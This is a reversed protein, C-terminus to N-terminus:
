KEYDDREELEDPIFNGNQDNMLDTIFDDRKYEQDAREYEEMFKEDRGTDIIEEAHREQEYDLAPVESTYSEYLTRADDYFIPADSEHQEKRDHVAEQNIREFADFAAMRMENNDYSYAYIEMEPNDKALKQEYLLRQDQMKKMAMYEEFTLEVGGHRRDSQVVLEKGKQIDSNIYEKYEDMTLERPQNMESLLGAIREEKEPDNHSITVVEGDKKHFVAGRSNVTMTNGELDAAYMPEKGDITCAKEKIEMFKQNEDEIMREMAKRCEPDTLMFAMTMRINNIKREDSMSYLVNWENEKPNQLSVNIGAAKAYETFLTAETVSLGPIKRVNGNAYQELMQHPVIGGISHDYRYQAIIKEVAKAEEKPYVILTEGNLSIASSNMFHIGEKKLMATIGQLDKEPCKFCCAGEKSNLLKKTVYKDVDIKDIYKLLCNVVDSALTISKFALDSTKFFLNISRDVDQAGM